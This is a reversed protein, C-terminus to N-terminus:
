PALRSIKWDGDVREYFLRDNLRNERGQWFEFDIPEVRYGGWHKPCEIPGSSSLRAFEAELDALKVPESQNSISSAVQSLKARSAFYEVNEQRSLKKAVGRVRVQRDLEKWYFTLSVNSNAAIERGKPSNYHTFFSVGSASIEKALVVRGQPFGQSDTTSLHVANPYKERAEIASKLWKQLEFIPNPDVDSELLKDKRYQEGVSKLDM